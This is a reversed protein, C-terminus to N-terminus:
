AAEEQDDREKQEKRESEEQQFDYYSLVRKSLDIEINLSQEKPLVLVDESAHASTDTLWRRDVFQCRSLLEVLKYIDEAQGVINTHYDIRLLNM